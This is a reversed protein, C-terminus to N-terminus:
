NSITAMRNFSKFFGMPASQFYRSAQSFRELTASILFLLDSIPLQM